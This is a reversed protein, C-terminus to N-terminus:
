LNKRNDSRNMELLRAYPDIGVSVPKESTIIELTGDGTTLKHQQLYLPKSAKEGFVAIEIYDNMGAAPKESGDHSVYIKGTHYQITVKYQNGNLPVANVATIRNDYLCIKEWYDSLLYKLSDPVHKKLSNFLDMSGAYPPSQRYAFSDRFEHLAADMNEKGIYHSLGYLVVATKNVVESWIGAHLLPEQNNHNWRINWIYWNMESALLQQAVDVGYRQEMATLGCYLAVGDKVVNAGKTHNPAVQGGWWERALDTSASYFCFDIDDSSKFDANWGYKESYIDMGPVSSTNPAYMTSEALRIENFPYPGYSKSYSLLGQKYAAMFRDLNKTHTPHYYFSVKIYRNDVQVSDHLEAFRASVIGPANYIGPNNCEYSFYNRGAESWKAILNGPGLATQDGSTSITIEFRLLDQAPGGILISANASEKSAPYEEKKKPLGYKIRDDGNSLEEDDDYGLAPLGIGMVTGNHLFNGAYLTNQFGKFSYVSNVEVVITDGPQMARPLTYLRYGSAIQREGTFSFKSRPFYLPVSFPLVVGAIKLTYGDVNDGDLLLTHIPSTTKNVLTGFAHFNAVQKEPFLDATEKIAVVKPLPMDEHRKLTKEIMAGHMKEEAPTFYHNIISVNYYVFTATAIFLVAVSFSIVRVSGHFRQRAIHMREKIATPTGRLFFLYSLVLLLGGCLGWYINFWTIPKLMHGIGDFDTLAYVPTFSYLLPTYNLYGSDIGLQCGFIYTVGVAIAVFKYRILVHLIFSLMAMIVLKPFTALFTVSAYLSFNFQYYGRIIQSIIATVSPAIAMVLCLCLISIFKGLHLVWTQPPLADNILSFGTLRERHIAEGTYFIVICFGFIMLNKNAFFLLMSTRPFDHVNYHIMGHTFIIGMFISLSGIIIWFYNDRLISATEIKILSWLVRRTYRKNFSTTVVPLTTVVSTTDPVTKSSPKKFFSEISFKKWTFALMIAGIGTWLIRNFLYMGQVIVLQSNKEAVTRADNILEISKNGFPDALNVLTTNTSARIFFNGIIYGLFLFIGSSYIVKVNKLIAVLGFFLSSTFFLDPLLITFFYYAYMSFPNPGYHSATEWGLVPGMKSGAFIGLLTSIAILVVFFFSGLYRGWFYASKTIPYAFYYEKTNYEVDRYVPVGMIASSILMAFLSYLSIFDAISSPSNIFQKEDLPLSGTAFTLFTAVFCFLCYLYVGPKSFRYKLEFRFIASFM